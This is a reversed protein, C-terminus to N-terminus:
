TSSGTGPSSRRPASCCWTTATSSSVSGSRPTRAARTDRWCRASPARAWGTPSRRTAASSSTATRATAASTGRHCGATSSATPSGHVRPLERRHRRRTSRRVRQRPRAPRGHVERDERGPHRPPDHPGHHPGVDCKVLKLTPTRATWIALPVQRPDSPGTYDDFGPVNNTTPSLRIHIHGPGPDDDLVDPGSPGAHFLGPGMYVWPRRKSGDLPTFGPLMSGPPLEGFLQNEARLDQIRSYSILRTYPGARPVIRPGPRRESREFKAAVPVRRRRAAGLQRQARRRVGRPHRRRAHRAGGPVVPDRDPQGTTGKRETVETDRLVDRRPASLVDGPNMWSTSGKQLPWPSEATGDNTDVGDPSVVIEM